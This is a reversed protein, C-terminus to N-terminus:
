VLHRTGTRAASRGPDLQNGYGNVRERGIGFQTGHPSRGVEQCHCVVQNYTEAVHSVALAYHSLVDGPVHWTRRAAEPEAHVTFLALAGAYLAYPKLRGNVRECAGPRARILHNTCCSDDWARSSRCIPELVM